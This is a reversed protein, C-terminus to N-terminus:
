TREVASELSKEDRPGQRLQSRVVGALYLRRNLEPLNWETRMPDYSLQSLAQM